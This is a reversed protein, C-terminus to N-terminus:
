CGPCARPSPGNLPVGVDFRHLEFV